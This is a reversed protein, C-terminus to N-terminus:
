DINGRDDRNRIEFSLTVDELFVAKLIMTDDIQFICESVLQKRITM